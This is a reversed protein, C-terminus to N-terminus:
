FDVSKEQFLRSRGRGARGAESRLVISENRKVSAANRENADDSDSSGTALTDGKRFTVSSHHTAKKKKTEKNRRTTKSRVGQKRPRLEPALMLLRVTRPPANKETARMGKLDKASSPETGSM